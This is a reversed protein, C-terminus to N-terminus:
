PKVLETRDHVVTGGISASESTWELEIRSPTGIEAGQDISLRGSDEGSAVMARALAVAASGTAPDEDVGGAPAFFRMHARTEDRAFCLTGFHELQAMDPELGTVASSNPYEAVFYEKPMRVLWARDPAPLGAALLSEIGPAVDVDQNLAVDIWVAGDDLRVEVQGVPCELRDHSAPGLHNMVWATGVLPHGAFEMEVGPTFIRVFPVERNGWDVFTSESFGLDAAIAQMQDTTLGVIDNIVGLLNGGANGRTFVRLVHAPRVM